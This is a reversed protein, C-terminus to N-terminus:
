AKRNEFSGGSNDYLMMLTYGTFAGVVLGLLTISGALALPSLFAGFYDQTRLSNQYDQDIYHAYLFIFAAYLASGVLGVVFGIGLGPLYPMHGGRSRKFTGIALIVAIIVFIHSGFRVVESDSLGLLVMIIFYVIMLVCAIIGYRIGITPISVKETAMNM